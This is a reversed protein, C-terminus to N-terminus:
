PLSRRNPKRVPPATAIQPAEAASAILEIRGLLSSLSCFRDKVTIETVTREVSAM